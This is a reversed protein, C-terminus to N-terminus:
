IMALELENIGNLMAPNLFFPPFLMLMKSTDSTIHYSFIEASLDPQSERYQHQVDQFNSLPEQDLLDPIFIAEESVLEIFDKM